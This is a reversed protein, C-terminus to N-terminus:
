DKMISYVYVLCDGEVGGQWLPSIYQAMIKDRYRHNPTINGGILPIDPTYKM